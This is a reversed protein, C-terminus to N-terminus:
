ALTLQSFITANMIIIIPHTIPVDYEWRNKALNSLCALLPWNCFDYGTYRGIKGVSGGTRNWVHRGSTAGWRNEVTSVSPGRRSFTIKMLLFSDLSNSLRRNSVAVSQDDCGETIITFFETFSFISIMVLAVNSQLVLEFSHEFLRRINYGGSM